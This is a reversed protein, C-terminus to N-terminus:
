SAAGFSRGSVDVLAEEVSEKRGRYREIIATEFPLGRLKPM